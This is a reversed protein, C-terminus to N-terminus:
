RSFIVMLFGATLFTAFLMFLAISIHVAIRDLSRLIGVRRTTPQEYDLTPKPDPM